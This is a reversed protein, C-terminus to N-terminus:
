DEVEEIKKDKTKEKTTSKKKTAMKTKKGASSGKSTTKKSANTPCEKNSCREYLRGRFRKKVMYSGCTDCVKGDIPLDFSTFDCDPDNTKDCFFLQNGRRIKRVRIPSQCKPCHSKTEESITETYTCDPYRTCAIFRGYRGVRIVLDGDGCAPCKRGTPEDEIVIKEITKKAKAVDQHFPGYFKELLEIWDQEGSEVEDLEKELDATFDTDVINAFNAELMTTVTVGLETPKIQRGEREVYLRDFLTSITPAYTSPRGIGLEEMASILSAETYRPPPQTFKQEPVLKDVLLCEGEKLDPLDVIEPDDDDERGEKKDQDSKESETIGYQRLWGPFVLKEGRSRFLHSDALIDVTVREYLAPEMQSAIFRNWILEYIKIQDSSLYDRVRSPPLDFHSPRIAEHADQASSKNKYVPVRKPLYEEGYTARILERASQVADASVRVSDTRIYTVLSTHGYPGLTLGEYLAQAARMTRRSTFGLTRSGAQQLTSTTYPAYPRRKRQSPKVLDVVYDKGKLEDLLKDLDDKSTLKVRSVRSSKKIGQYLASFPSDERNQKLLVRLKWYEEPVFADIERERMVVLRTAVSQVRGASLGRRIKQWLLPSLEYGVLRDLIRRSQQANVLDLDIPRPHNIAENVAKGTIEHFAIRCHDGPEINLIHALHWAIAEGERDPDTALLVRDSKEKAGKLEKVIKDKGPMIIYMPKFKNKVDVGITSAPLDRIHGVSSRVDFSPGLYRAITKAKAPSEVVVLTRKSM